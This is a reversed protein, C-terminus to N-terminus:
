LKLINTELRSSSSPEKTFKRSSDTKVISPTHDRLLAAEPGNHRFGASTHLRQQKVRKLTSPVDQEAIPQSRATSAAHSLGLSTQPRLRQQERAEDKALRFQEEWEKKTSKIENKILELAVENQLILETLEVDVVASEELLQSKNLRKTPTGMGCTDSVPEGPSVESAAKLLSQLRANEDRLKQNEQELSRLRLVTAADSSSFALSTPPPCPTSQLELRKKLTAIQDQLIPLNNNEIQLRRIEELLANESSQVDRTRYSALSEELVEIHKLLKRITAKPDSPDVGLHTTHVRPFSSATSPRSTASSSPRDCVTDTDDGYGNTLLEEGLPNATRMREVFGAGSSTHPREANGSADDQPDVHDAVESQSEQALYELLIPNNNLFDDRFLRVNGRPM